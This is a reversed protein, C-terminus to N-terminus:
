QQAPGDPETKPQETVGYKARIEDRGLENGDGDVLDADTAGQSRAYAVWDDRSANGKPQEVEGVVPAQVNADIPVLKFGLAEAQAAVEEVTATQEAVEPEQEGRTAPTSPVYLRAM